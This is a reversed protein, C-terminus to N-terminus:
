DRVRAGAIPRHQPDHVLGRVRALFRPVRWADWFLALRRAVFFVYAKRM